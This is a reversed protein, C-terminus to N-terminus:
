QLTFSIILEGKPTTKYSPFGKIINFVNFTSENYNKYKYNLKGVGHHDQYNQGVGEVDAIVDIQFVIVQKSSSECNSM